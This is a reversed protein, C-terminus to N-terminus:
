IFGIVWGYYPSCFVDIVDRPALATVKERLYREVIQRVQPFLVHAPAECERSNVYERTLAAAMGFVLDQFRNGARWAELDVKELKGPASLSPRGKNTPVTAKM